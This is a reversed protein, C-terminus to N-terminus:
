TDARWDLGPAERRRCSTKEGIIEAEDTRVSTRPDDTTTAIRDQSTSVPDVRALRCTLETRMRCHVIDAHDANGM